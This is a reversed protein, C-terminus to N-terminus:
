GFYKRALDMQLKETFTDWMVEMVVMQAHSESKDEDNISWFMQGTEYDVDHRRVVYRAGSLDPLLILNFRMSSPTPAECKDSYNVYYYTRGSFELSEVKCGCKAKRM